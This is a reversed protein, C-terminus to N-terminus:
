HSIFGTLILPIFIAAFLLAMITEPAMTVLNPDPKNPDRM